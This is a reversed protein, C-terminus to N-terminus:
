LVPWSRGDRQDIRMSVGYLEKLLPERLLERTEGRAVVRGRNIVLTHAFAPMIEEIHHTVLVLSPAGPTMALQQLSALLIERAGPDLGVCPDDLIILLPRAMRARAILVKQQQGQSLTGFAQQALDDAGLQKLYGRAREFDEQRVNMGQFEVLGIQAFKGSVVTQIALERAPIMALLTSNVWGISKRMERVDVLTQGDRRVEGGSNPWLYGAVIRLLTTKGAGNPGLV